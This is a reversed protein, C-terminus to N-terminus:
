GGGAAAGCEPCAAGGALGSLSYGCARCVGPRERWRWWTLGLLGLAVGEVMWFPVLTYLGAWTEPRVSSPWWVYPAAVDGMEVYYLGNGGWRSSSMNQDYYVDDTRTGNVIILLGGRALSVEVNCRDQAAASLLGGSWGPPEIRGVGIGVAEFHSALWLLGVVVSLVTLALLERRRKRV